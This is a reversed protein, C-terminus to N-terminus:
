KALRVYKDDPTAPKGYRLRNIREPAMLPARTCLSAFM